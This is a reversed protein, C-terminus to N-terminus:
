IPEDWSSLSRRHRIDLEDLSIAGPLRLHPQEDGDDLDAGDVELKPPLIPRYRAYSPESSSSLAVSPATADTTFESGASTSPEKFSSSSSSGRLNSSKRATPRSPSRTLRQPPRLRQAIMLSGLSCGLVISMLSLMPLARKESTSPQDAVRESSSTTSLSSPLPEQREAFQPTILVLTAVFAIDILVIWLAVAVLAPRQRLFALLTQIHALRSTRLQSQTAQASRRCESQGEESVSESSRQADVWQPTSQLKPNTNAM